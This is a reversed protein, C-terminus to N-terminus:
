AASVEDFQVIAVSLEFFPNCCGLILWDLGFGSYFSSGSTHFPKSKVYKGATMKREVEM